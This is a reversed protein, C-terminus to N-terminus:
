GTLVLPLVFSTVEREMQGYSPNIQLSSHLQGKLKPKFKPKYPTNRQESIAKLLWKNKGNSVDVVNGQSDKIINNEFDVYYMKGKVLYSEGRPTPKSQPTPKATKTPQQVVQQLEDPLGQGIIPKPKSQISKKLAEPLGQGIKSEEEIPPHLPQQAPELKGGLAVYNNYINKPNIKKGRPTIYEFHLHPGTGNGFGPEGIGAIRGIVTGPKVQQGSKVKFQNLHIYRTISGDDHKITVIGNGDGAIGAYQVVGGKKITVPLHTTQQWGAKNQLDIGNHMRGWRFGFQSTETLSVGTLSGMQVQSERFKASGDPARPVTKLYEAHKKSAGIKDSPREWERMWWDAAAQASSFKTSLYQPGKEGPERLAYDIQGKWNTAWDPVAKEMANSRPKKWQFLGGAGGDDGSRIGVVFGSERSINAMLGLAQVDSLKKVNVLYDYIEKQIGTPAYGGYMGGAIGGADPTAGTGDGSEGPSTGKMKLERNLNNMVSETASQISLTLISSIRKGIREGLSMNSRIERTSPVFGGNAMGLTESINLFSANVESDVASQIVSGFINGLDRSLNKDPKQGLALDIGAGFMAGPLGELARIKKVEKSSNKLARLASREGPKDVGYLEEIIKKGGIDKGPQTKQPQIRKAKAKKRTRIRRSKAVTSQGGSVRGGEAKGEAKPQPPKKNGFIMDYLVGALEAGAWGGLAMGVVTGPGPIVSGIAGGIAGILVSGVGRFAAKGIPDGLAWSLGFEILGGIIPIRSFLPKLTKVATRLGFKTAQKAGAKASEKAAQRIQAAAAYRAAKESARTAIRTQTTIARGTTSGARVGQPLGRLGAGAAGGAGGAALGKRFGDKFGKSYAEKIAKVGSGGPKSAALAVTAAIIAGNLVANLNKSFEQFKEKADKGGIEEIKKEIKDYREYAKDVFFVFGEFLFKVTEELFKAAPKIFKGFELLKPLLESYKNILYGALTFLLFRQIRDFISAGPLSIFPTDFKPKEKPKKELKEERKKARLNEKEKRETEERKKRIFFTNKLVDKISIVKKKIEFIEKGGQKKATEKEEAPKLLNSSIVASRKFTINKAPVLFPTQSKVISSGPQGAPLLKKSDIVAM